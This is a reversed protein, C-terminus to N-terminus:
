MPDEVDLGVARQDKKEGYRLDFDSSKAPILPPLQHEDRREVCRDHVDSRGAM